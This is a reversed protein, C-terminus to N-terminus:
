RKRVAVCEARVAPHMKATNSRIGQGERSKGVMQILRLAFVNKASECLSETQFGDVVEMQVDRISGKEAVIHMTLILVWEM